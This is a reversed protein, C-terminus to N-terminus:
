HGDVASAATAADVEADAKALEAGVKVSALDIAGELALVEGGAKAKIRAWADEINVAGAKLEARLKSAMTAVEADFRQRMSADYGELRALVLEAAKALDIAGNVSLFFANPHTNVSLGPSNSTEISQKIASVVVMMKANVETM